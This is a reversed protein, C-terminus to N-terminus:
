QEDPVANTDAEPADKPRVALLDPGDIEELIQEEDHGELWDFSEVCDTDGRFEGDEYHAITEWNNGDYRRKIELM